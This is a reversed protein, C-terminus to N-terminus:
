RNKIQKKLENALRKNTDGSVYLSFWRGRTSRVLVAARPPAVVM